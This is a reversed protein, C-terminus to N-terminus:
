VSSLRWLILMVSHELNIHSSFGLHHCGGDQIESFTLLESNSLAIQAFNPQCICWPWASIVCSWFGVGSALERSTMLHIDPLYTRRDWNRCHKFFQMKIETMVEDFKWSNWYTKISLHCFAQFQMSYLYKEGSRDGPSLTPGPRGPRLGPVSKNAM